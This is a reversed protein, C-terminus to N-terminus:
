EDYKLQSGRKYADKWYDREQVVAKLDRELQRTRREAQHARLTAASAEDKLSVLLANLADLQRTKEHLDEKLHTIEVAAAAFKSNIPQLESLEERLSAVLERLLRLEGKEDKRSEKQARDSKRVFFTWLAGVGAIAGTLLTGAIGYIWEPGINGSHIAM